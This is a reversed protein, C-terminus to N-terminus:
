APPRYSLLLPIVVVTAAQVLGTILLTLFLVLKRSLDRVGGGWLLGGSLLTDSLSLTIRDIAMMEGVGCNSILPNM